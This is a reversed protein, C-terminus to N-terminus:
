PGSGQRFHEAATRFAALVAPRGELQWDQHFPPDHQAIDFWVLGLLHYQLVGAFLDWVKAANDGAGPGVATETILVPTTGVFSRIATISPGFLSRFSDSPFEYYGDIGAWDVWSAGPWYTRLAAPRRRSAVVWVWKVNRVSSSRFASVLHRWAARFAQPHGDWPYWNANMEPAFSLGVIGHVTRVQNAIQRIYADDAGSAVASLSTSRPELYVLPMIHSDELATLSTVPLPDGWNVYRVSLNPRIDTSSEFAALRNTVVGLIRGPTRIVTSPQAATRAALTTCAAASVPVALILLAASLTVRGAARPKV